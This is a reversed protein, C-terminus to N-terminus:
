YRQTADTCHPDVFELGAKNVTCVAGAIVLWGALEVTQPPLELLKLM